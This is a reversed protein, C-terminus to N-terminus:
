IHGFFVIVPWMLAADPLRPLVYGGARRVSRGSQEARWEALYLAWETVWRMTRNLGFTRRGRLKARLAFFMM